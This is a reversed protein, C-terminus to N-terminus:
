LAMVTVSGAHMNNSNNLNLYRHFLPLLSDRVRKGTSPVREGAPNGYGVKSHPNTDLRM